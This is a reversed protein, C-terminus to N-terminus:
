GGSSVSAEDLPDVEPRTGAVEAPRVVGLPDTALLAPEAAPRADDDSVEADVVEVLGALHAEVREM